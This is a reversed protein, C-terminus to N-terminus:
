SSFVVNEIWFGSNQIIKDEISNKNESEISTYGGNDLAYGVVYAQYSIQDFAPQGLRTIEVKVDGKDTSLLM